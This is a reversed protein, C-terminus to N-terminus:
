FITIPSVRAPAIATSPRLVAKMIPSATGNTKAEILSAIMALELYWLRSTNRELKM